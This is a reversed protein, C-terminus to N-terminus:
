FSGVLTWPNPTDKAFTLLGTVDFPTAQDLWWTNQLMFADADFGAGCPHGWRAEFQMGDLAMDSTIVKGDYAGADDVEDKDHTEAECHGCITRSSPADRQLLTDWHDALMAEGVAADIKGHELQALEGWRVYRAYDSDDLSPKPAHAERRIKTGTPWNSSGYFGNSTRKLDSVRCGLQLSAIEGTKADGILWENPYGGNNRTLLTHIVGSVSTDYQIAHRIRVFVPVGGPRGAAADDLSTECVMLGSDNVYWDEGSWISAGAGQYRFEHGKAPKVDFIVNYMFDEHYNSWTNHGMVIKGDATADGTAIFASCRGVTSPAVNASRTALSWYVSMDSWANAAVVDWLDVTYGHARMGAVNGQMEQRYETPVHPWVYKVAIRRMITRERSGKPGLYSRLWQAALKGTLYGRQYGIQYPSGKLDVLLWGDQWVTHSGALLEAQTTPTAAAPTAVATTAAPSANAAAASSAAWAAGAVAASLGVLLLLLTLPLGHCARTASTTPRTTIM